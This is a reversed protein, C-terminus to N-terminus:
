EWYGAGFIPHKYNQDLHIAHGPMLAMCALNVVAGPTAYIFPLAAVYGIPLAERLLVHHWKGDSIVSGDYGSVGDIQADAATAFGGTAARIFYSVTVNPGVPRSNSALSLYAGTTGLQATQATGQTFEAIHYEVGFRQLGGLDDFLAAAAESLTGASGGTDNNNHIFRGASTLASTGNFPHLYSPAQFDAATLSNPSASAFRGYDALINVAPNLGLSDERWQNLIALQATVQAQFQPITDSEFRSAVDSASTFNAILRSVQEALDGALSTTPFLTYIQGGGSSGLFPTALTLSNDSNISAVEYVRGDPGVFGWGRQVGINWTTGIGTVAASGNSVTVTGSSIWAM